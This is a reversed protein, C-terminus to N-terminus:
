INKKYIDILRIVNYVGFCLQISIYDIVSSDKFKLNTASNNIFGIELLNSPCARYKLVYFNGEKIGRFKDEEFALDLWTTMISAYEKGLVDEKHVWLEEGRAVNPSLSANTHISVFYDSNHRKAIKVRNELPIFIDEDRTLKLDIFKSLSLINKMRLVVSLVIDKEKLGDFIAGSDHGGHGADLCIKIM